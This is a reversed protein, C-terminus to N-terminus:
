EEMTLEANEMNISIDFNEVPLNPAISIKCVIENYTKSAQKAVKYSQLVGASVMQDLLKVIRSKFNLWTVDNNSEYTYRVAANYAEKSIDCVMVMLSMYGSAKVSQQLPLLTRDGWIVDGYPRIPVIGNFATCNEDLIIHNDFYYKSMKLDSEGASVGGRSSNAVPLWNQNNKMCSGMSVLYAYSAPVTVNDLTGNTGSLTVKRNPTILYSWKDEERGSFNSTVHLKEFEENDIYSDSSMLAAKIAAALVDGKMIPSDTISNNSLEATDYEVSDIVMCDRRGSAIDVLAIHEDCDFDFSFSLSGSPELANGDSGSVALKSGKKSSTFEAKHRARITGHTGATLFKVNYGDKDLLFDLKAAKLTGRSGDANNAPNYYLVDYGKSLYDRVMAFCLQEEQFNNSDKDEEVDLLNKVESYQSSSIYVCRNEDAKGEKIPALGPFFIVQEDGSYEAGTNDVLDINIKPM